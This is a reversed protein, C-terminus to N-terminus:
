WFGNAETIEFEECTRAVVAIIEEHAHGNSAVLGNHAKVDAQNFVFPNGWCDTITGGAAELVACPACIDWEKCGPSPHLYLDSVQRSILGVKLGVSGSARENSIALTNVMADTIPQRHSRSTVLTMEAPQSIDSVALTTGTDDKGEYVIARSGESDTCGTYLRYIAPSEAPAPQMVVGMVAKGGIALGIMISFEGNKAIFEKTGDLPDIIWVRECRLRAENDKSEESLLGDQPYAEAIRSVIHDNVAHDAATVPERENKYSIQAENKYFSLAIEAAEHAVNCAFALEEQLSITNM